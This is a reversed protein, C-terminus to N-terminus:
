KKRLIKSGYLSASRRNKMITSGVTLSRPTEVFFFPLRVLNQLKM